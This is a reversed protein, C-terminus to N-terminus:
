WDQDLAIHNESECECCEELVAEIKNAALGM